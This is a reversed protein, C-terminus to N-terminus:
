VFVDNILYTYKHLFSVKVLSANQLLPQLTDRSVVLVHWGDKVNLRQWSAQKILIIMMGDLKM